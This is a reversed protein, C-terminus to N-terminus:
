VTRTSIRWETNNCGPIKTYFCGGGGCGTEPLICTNNWYGIFFEAPLHPGQYWNAHICVSGFVTVPYALINNTTNMSHGYWQSKIGGGFLGVISSPLVGQEAWETTVIDGRGHM